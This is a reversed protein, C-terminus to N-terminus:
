IRQLKRTGDPFSRKTAAAHSRRMPQHIWSAAIRTSRVTTIDPPRKVSRRLPYKSRRTAKSHGAIRLM